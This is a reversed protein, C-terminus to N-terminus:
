GELFVASEGVVSVRGESLLMGSGGAIGIITDVDGWRWRWEVVRM